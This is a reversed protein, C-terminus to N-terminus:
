GGTTGMCNSFNERPRLSNLKDCAAKRVEPRIDSTFLELWETVYRKDPTSFFAFPDDRIGNVVALQVDRDDFGKAIERLNSDRYESPPRLCKPRFWFYQALTICGLDRLADDSSVQLQSLPTAIYKPSAYDLAHAVSEPLFYSFKQLDFDSGPTLLIYAITEYLGLDAPTPQDHRGSHVELALQSGDSFSRLVKGEKRLSVIYRKGPSLFQQQKQDPKAFFYFNINNGVGSGKLVNEVEANFNILQLIVGGKSSFKRRPGKLEFNVIKVVLVEPASLWFDQLGRRPPVVRPQLVPEQAGLMSAALIAACITKM